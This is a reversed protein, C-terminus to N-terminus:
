GVGDLVILDFCWHEVLRLFGDHKEPVVARLVQKREVPILFNPDDPIQLFPNV